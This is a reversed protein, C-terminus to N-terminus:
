KNELSESSDKVLHACVCVCVCVCVVYCLKLFLSKNELSEFSDKVLRACVCVYLM